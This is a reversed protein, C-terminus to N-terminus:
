KSEGGALFTGGCTRIWEDFARKPILLRKGCRITPLQGNRAMEYRLNRNVPLPVTEPTYFIEKAPLPM